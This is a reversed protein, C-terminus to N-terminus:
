GTTVPKQARFYRNAAPNFLLYAFLALLITHVVLQSLAHFGSLIVHYALWVVSLWRAWDKGRLVYIGAVIATVRLLLILIVDFSLALRPNLGILHYTVGILGAAAMFCGAVTVPHPREKM